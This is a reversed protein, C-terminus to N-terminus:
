LVLDTIPHADTGWDRGDSWTEQKWVPVSTKVTDILWRAADFAEGRHPASVAVVVAIDTVALSGVRHWVVIRGLEPWRRRAEGALAAMRATAADAYAEYVLESVGARGESHDRVTGFFVVVGGCDPRVVWSSAVDAPIPRDSLAIWDDAEPAEPFESSGPSAAPLV